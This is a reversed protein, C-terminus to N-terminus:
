AVAAVDEESYLNYFATNTIFRNLFGESSVTCIINQETDTVSLTLSVHFVLLVFFRALM